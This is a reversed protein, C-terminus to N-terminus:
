SALPPMTLETAAKLAAMPTTWAEFSPLYEASSTSHHSLPSLLPAKLIVAALDSGHWLHVSRGKLRYRVVAHDNVNHHDICLPM